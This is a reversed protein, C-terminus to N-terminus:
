HRFVKHRDPFWEPVSPLAELPEGRTVAWQVLWNAGKEGVYNNPLRYAPDSLAEDLTIFRYGRKRLLELVESLHEAELWTAHLLMIQKTEYGLLHKSLQESRALEAEAHILYSSVIEQQLANDGHIRADAYIDAVRWDGSDVTLPAIWYGRNSLFGEAKRRTQLDRGTELHPYRFYQLKMNHEVLLLRTVTEGQIVENEFTELGDRNLSVHSFTHNGLGFGAEPWMALCSIRKDVEGWKYLYRENVFGIAPVEHQRLIALLRATMEFLSSATANSEDFAPLDDITIAIQRVTSDQHACQSGVSIVLLFLILKTGIRM